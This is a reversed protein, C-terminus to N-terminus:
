GRRAETARAQAGAAFAHSTARSVGPRLSDSCRSSRAELPFSLHLLSNVSREHRGVVLISRSATCPGSTFPSSTSSDCTLTEDVIAPSSSYTSNQGAPVKAFPWNAQVAQPFRTVTWLTSGRQMTHPSRSQSRASQLGKRATQPAPSSATAASDGRRVSAPGQRRIIAPRSRWPRGKCSRSESVHM